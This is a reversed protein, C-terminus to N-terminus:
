QLIKVLYRNEVAIYMYTYIKGNMFLQEGIDKDNSQHKEM